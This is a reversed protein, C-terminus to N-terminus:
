QWVINLWIESEYLNDKFKLVHLYIIKWKQCAAAVTPQTLLVRVVLWTPRRKVEKGAKDESVWFRFRIEKCTRIYKLIRM